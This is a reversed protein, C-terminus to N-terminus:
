VCCMKNESTRLKNMAESLLKISEFIPSHKEEPILDFLLKYYENCTVNINEASKIGKKTLSLSTYRRDKKSEARNLLGSKVMGDVTRSLSSKDLGFTDSLERITTEKKEALEMLIHCQGLTVGCCQIEFGTQFGMERELLRLISRFFIIKKKDM